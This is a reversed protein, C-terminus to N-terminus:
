ILTKPHLHINKLFDECIFVKLSNELPWIRIGLLSIQIGWSVRWNQLKELLNSFPSEFGEYLSEFGCELFHLSVFAIWIGGMAILIWMGSLESQRLHNSDRMFLNSDRMFLNSDRMFLNSDLNWYAFQPQGIWIRLWTIRIGHSSLFISLAM